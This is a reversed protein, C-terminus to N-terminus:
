AVEAAPDNTIIQYSGIVEVTFTYGTIDSGSHSFEAREGIEGRPIVYRYHISTDDKDFLDLVFARAEIKRGPTAEITTTGTATVSSTVNHQLGLTLATTELCQFTFSLDSETVTTRVVRGGQHGRFKEVSDSPTFPVGDAHLWGVDVIAADVAALDTPLTSGLPGVQVKDDDSGFIRANAADIAM